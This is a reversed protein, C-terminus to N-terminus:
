YDDNNCDEDYDDDDNDYIVDWLKKTTMTTTLM